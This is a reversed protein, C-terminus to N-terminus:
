ENQGGGGGGGGSGSSAVAQGNLSEKSPVGLERVVRRVTAQTGLHAEGRTTSVVRSKIPTMDQM